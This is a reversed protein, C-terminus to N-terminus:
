NPTRRRRIRHDVHRRAGDASKLARAVAKAAAPAAAVRLLDRAERLKAIAARVGAADADTAPTIPRM